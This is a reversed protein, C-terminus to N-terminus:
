GSEELAASSIKMLVAKKMKLQERFDYHDANAIEYRLNSLYSELTAALVGKEKDDLELHIM